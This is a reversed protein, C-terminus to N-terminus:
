KLHEGAAAGSVVHSRPADAAESAVSGANAGIRGFGCFMETVNSSALEILVINGPGVSDKAAAQEVRTHRWSQPGDHVLVHNSFSRLRVLLQPAKPTEFPAACTATLPGVVACSDGPTGNRLGKGFALVSRSRLLEAFEALVRRQYPLVAGPAPCDGRYSRRREHVIEGIRTAPVHLELSLKNVTLGLPKMFDERLIEGPHVPPMLVPTKKM